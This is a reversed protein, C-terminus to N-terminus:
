LRTPSEPTPTSRLILYPLVQKLVKYIYTSYTETRKKTRKKPEGGGPAKKSATKAPAKGAPKKGAVEKPPMNPQHSPKFLPHFKLDIKFFFSSQKKKDRNSSLKSFFIGHLHAPEEYLM